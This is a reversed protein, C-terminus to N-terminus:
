DRSSDMHFTEAMVAAYPLAARLGFGPQTM